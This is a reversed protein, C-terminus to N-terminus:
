NVGVATWAQTVAREAASNAGYLDRASQITAARATAFTANAPLMQTFARYYVKEMQERNSAGIGQVSLGSTRNTGGEIALYFTQTVISCNIHVGGNDATGTFRRSYHDPDGHSQPDSMSRIGGPRVVDEGILYDARLNGSGPPQYFFEVSTGMIDSFAENLAGSENLYILGSSYDTVGHSLEHAVVDLAGSLFDWSQGGLTFGPPLGVGFVVIGDGAYFANTYFLNFDNFLTLVDARRVPNTVVQMSRNANDLGRRSFRKFYYDYTWGAYVHADDVAGDTWNNDSDSAIDSAGLTIFDNLFDLTRLYNGQMDYTTISPPRLADSAIFRGGSSTVSIKKTDGLVGQARGVASQTQLNSYDYVIAGSRADVFYMRVDNSATARLRWTLTYTGDERPLIVLEPQRSGLEVAAREAVIERARDPEIAPSTDIAIDEYVNGFVSMVQGGNLQEAVDAGFVRVGKYFQDFRVHSRGRLLLDDRTIRVRLDGDNRMRDIRPALDRLDANSVGRLAVLGRHQQQAATPALSHSLLFLGVAAAGALRAAASFRLRAM